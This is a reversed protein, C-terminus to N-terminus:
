ARDEAKAKTEDSQELAAEHAFVCTSSLAERLSVSRESRGMRVLLGLLSTSLSGDFQREYCREVSNDLDLDLDRSGKIMDRRRVDFCRACCQEVADDLNLDLDLDRFCWLM